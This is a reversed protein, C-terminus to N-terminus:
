DIFVEEQLCIAMDEEAEARTAHYTMPLTWKWLSRWGRLVAVTYCLRRHYIVSVVKFKMSNEKNTM